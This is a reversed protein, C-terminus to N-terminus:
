LRSVFVHNKEGADGIKVFETPIKKLTKLKKLIKM